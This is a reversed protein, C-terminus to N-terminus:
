KAGMTKAVAALRTKVTLDQMQRAVEEATARVSSAEDPPLFKAARPAIETLASLRARRWNDTTGDVTFTGLM